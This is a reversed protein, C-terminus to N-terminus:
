SRRQFRQNISAIEDNLRRVLEGQHIVLDLTNRGVMMANGLSLAMAELKKCLEAQSLRGWDLRDPPTNDAPFIDRAYAFDFTESMNLALASMAELYETIEALPVVKLHEIKKEAAKQFDAM